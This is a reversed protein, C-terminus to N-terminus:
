EITLGDLDFFGAQIARRPRVFNHVAHLITANVLCWTREPIIVEALLELKRHDDCREGRERIVPKGNEVYWATRVADGGCDIIYMLTYNRSLDRHAAQTDKNFGDPETTSVRLNAFKESINTKFWNVIDGQLDWSITPANKKVVGDTHIEVTRAHNWNIQMDNQPMQFLEKSYLQSLSQEVLEDPIHPYDLFKYFWTM